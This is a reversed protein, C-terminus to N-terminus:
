DPTKEFEKSYELRLDEPNRNEDKNEKEGNVQEDQNLRRGALSCYDASIEFGIYHRNLEKCAVATTGSGMFPDLVLDGPNTTLLIANKALEVPFPAPHEKMPKAFINWVESRFEQSVADRNVAPKGKCLWFIRETCPLLIDKRINPSNKRNWVIEQYVIADSKLIFSMPHYIRNDHRIPKHNFFVSGSPKIKRMCLNILEIMWREYDDIPIDDGYSSYEIQFGGWIQNSKKQKSFFSKNYPPSTVVLDISDDPLRKMGEICDENYITDLGTM